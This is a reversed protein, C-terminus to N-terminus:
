QCKHTISLVDIGYSIIDIGCLIVLTYLGCVGWMTSPGSNAVGAKKSLFKVADVLFLIVGVDVLCQFIISGVQFLVNKDCFETSPRLISVYALYIVFLFKSGAGLLITKQKDSLAFNTKM